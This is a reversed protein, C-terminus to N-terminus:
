KTHPHKKRRCHAKTPKTQEKTTTSETVTTTQETTTTPSETTTVQCGRPIIDTMNCFTSSASTCTSPVFCAISKKAIPPSTPEAGLAVAEYLTGGEM